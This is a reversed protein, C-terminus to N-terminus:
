ILNYYFQKNNETPNPENNPTDNSPEFNILSNYKSQIVMLDMEIQILREDTGKGNKLASILTTMKANLKDLYETKNGKSVSFVPTDSNAGFTVASGEWLVVEKIERIGDERLYIKDQITQFGISHETIIGDQYDLFAAEGKASRGLDAWAILHDHSEELSKFVGIEHEFDHYRLFKIKRNSTSDPGRELISKSFAGKLIVDNDSDVNNFASLAIKVRRGVTDLDKIEFPLSKTTKFLNSM